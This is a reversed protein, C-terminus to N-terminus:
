TLKQGNKLPKEDFSGSIAFIQQFNHNKTMKFVEVAKQHLIIEPSYVKLKQGIEM